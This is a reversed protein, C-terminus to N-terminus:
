DTKKNISYVESLIDVERTEVVQGHQHVETANKTFM